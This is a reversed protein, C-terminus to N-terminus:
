ERFRQVTFTPEWATTPDILFWKLTKERRSWELELKEAKRQKNDDIEGGESRPKPKQDNLLKM